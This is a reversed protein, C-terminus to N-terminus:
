QTKHFWRHVQKLILSDTNEKPLILYIESSDYIGSCRWCSVPEWFSDLKEEDALWNDSFFEISDLFTTHKVFFTDKYNNYKSYHWLSYYKYNKAALFTDVYKYVPKAISYSFYNITDNQNQTLEFLNKSDYIYVPKSIKTSHPSQCQWGLIVIIIILKKM